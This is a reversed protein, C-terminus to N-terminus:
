PKETKACEEGEVEKFRSPSWDCVEDEPIHGFIVCCKNCHKCDNCTKGPPLDMAKGKEDKLKGRLMPKRYIM